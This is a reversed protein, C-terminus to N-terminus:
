LLQPLASVLARLLNSLFVVFPPIGQRIFLLQLGKAAYAPANLLTVNYLTSRIAVDQIFHKAKIGISVNIPHVTAIHVNVIEDSTPVLLSGM